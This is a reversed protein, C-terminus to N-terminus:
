EHLGRKFLNSFFTVLKNKKKPILRLTPDLTARLRPRHWFWEMWQWYPVGKQQEVSWIQAKLKHKERWRRPVFNILGSWLIVGDQGFITLEQGNELYILAKRQNHPPLDNDALFMFVIRGEMGQEWYSELYGSILDSMNKLEDRASRMMNVVYKM